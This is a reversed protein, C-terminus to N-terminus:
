KELNNSTAVSGERSHAHSSTVDTEKSALLLQRNNLKSKVMRRGRSGKGADTKKMIGPIPTPKPIKKPPLVIRYQAAMGIDFHAAMHCHILFPGSDHNNFCIHITINSGIPMTDRWFPTKLKVGEVHTVLFPVDHVHLPHEGPPNSTVIWTECTGYVLDGHSYYPTHLRNNIGFASGPPVFPGSYPIQFIPFTSTFQFNITRTGISKQGQLKHLKAAVPILKAPLFPTNKKHAKDDEVIIKGVITAKDYSVCNEVPANFFRTCLAVGTIGSNWAARHFVYTGPTDFKVLFEIRSGAYIEVTKSEVISPAPYGDYAVPFMTHNDISLRMTPEVTASVARFLATEGRKFTFITENGLYGNTIHEWSFDFAFSHFLDPVKTTPDTNSEALILFVETADSYLDTISTPKELNEGKQDIVFIGYLGSLYSPVATGHLHNHYWFFGPPQDKPIKFTYTKRKGGDLADHLMEINPDFGAGHFHINQYNAGWHYYCPCTPAIPPNLINGISDLRNYVITMNADNNTAEQRDHTYSYLEHDLDSGPELNNILTVIVTDGPKARLTPGIPAGNYGPALRNSNLSLVLDVTLKVKLVGGKSALEVPQPNTVVVAVLQHFALFFLFPFLLKM